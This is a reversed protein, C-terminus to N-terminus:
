LKIDWQVRVSLSFWFLSIIEFQAHPFPVSVQFMTRLFSQYWLITLTNLIIYESILKITFFQNWKM